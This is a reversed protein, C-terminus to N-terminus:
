FKVIVLYSRTHKKNYHMILMNEDKIFDFRPSWIGEIVIAIALLSVLIM